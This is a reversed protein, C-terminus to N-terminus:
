TVPHRDQAGFWAGLWVDDKRAPSCELDVVSRGVDYSGEELWGVM